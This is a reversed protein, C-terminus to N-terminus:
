HKVTGGVESEGEADCMISHTTVSNTFLWKSLIYFSVSTAFNALPTIEADAQFFKPFGCFFGAMFVPRKNFMEVHSKGFELSTVGRSRFEPNKFFGAIFGHVQKVVADM